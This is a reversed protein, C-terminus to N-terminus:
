GMDVDAPIAEGQKSRKFDPRNRNYVNGDIARKFNRSSKLDSIAHWLLVSGFPNKWSKLLSRIGPPVVYVYLKEPVALRGTVERYDEGFDVRWIFRM